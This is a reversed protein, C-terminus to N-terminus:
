EGSLSVGSVTLPWGRIVKLMFMLHSKRTEPFVGIWLSNNM